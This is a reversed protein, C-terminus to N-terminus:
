NEKRVMIPVQRATACEAEDLRFHIQMCRSKILQDLVMPQLVAAGEEIVADVARGTGPADRRRRIVMGVVAM